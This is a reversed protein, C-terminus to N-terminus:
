KGGEKTGVDKDIKIWLFGVSEGFSSHFVDERM